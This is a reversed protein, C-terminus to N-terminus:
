RVPIFSLAFLKAIRGNKVTHCIHMGNSVDYSGNSMSNLYLGVEICKGYCSKFM